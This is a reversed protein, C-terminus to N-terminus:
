EGQEMVFPLRERVYLMVLQSLYEMEEESLARGREIGHWEEICRRCCSATAHQAYYLVNGTFATQRGDFPPSAPGVSSTIRKRAAVELAGMGLRIARSVAKEDIEVHWFHHRIMEFHLAEFTYRADGIDRKSVRPWNVLNAGCSRCSGRQNLAIMKRTSRFCHLNHECDASTCTIKLPELRNEM